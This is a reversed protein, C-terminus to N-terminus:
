LVVVGCDCVRQRVLIRLAMGSGPGDDEVPCKMRPCSQMDYM